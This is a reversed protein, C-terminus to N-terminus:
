QVYASQVQLMYTTVNILNWTGLWRAPGFALITCVELYVFPSMALLAVAESAVITFGYPSHVLQLLSRSM